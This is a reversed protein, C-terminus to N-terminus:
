GPQTRPQARAGWPQMRSSAQEAEEEDDAGFLDALDNEVPEAM